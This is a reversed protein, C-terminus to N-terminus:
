GALHGARGDLLEKAAQLDAPEDCDFWEPATEDAVLLAPGLPALSARLSRGVQDGALADTLLQRPWAGLLWQPAGAADAIVAGSPEAANVLRAVAQATVFPLDAALAVVIPATLERLGAALAAAPGAGAPEERTWQVTVKVPRAPGVVVIQEAGSVAALARDLLSVGGVLLMTKDGGMRRSSGGALVVADYRL